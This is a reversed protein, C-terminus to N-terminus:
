RTTVGLLRELCKRILGKATHLASKVTGEPMGMMAAVERGPLDHAHALVLLQRHSGKLKKMCQRLASRRQAEDVRAYGADIETAIMEDDLEVTQQKPRKRLLDILRRNAIGLLWTKFKASGGPQYRTPHKWVELMTAQVTDEALSPEWGDGKLFSKVVPAYARYFERAAAQDDAAMRSLLILTEKETLAL